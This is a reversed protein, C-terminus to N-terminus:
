ILMAIALLSLMSMSVSTGADLLIDGTCDFGDGSYGSDCACSFSGETNSCGANAGCNATGLTCEDDDTCDFGDGSYGSNCAYCSFSGETNNCGANADCNATGLTCEDDDTCDLGDGSYGSDCFCIFSGETNNCGANADCTGLTCEDIDDCSEVSYPGFETCESAQPVTGKSYGEACALTVNFADPGLNLNVETFVLSEDYPRTCNLAICSEYTYLETVASCATAGPLNGDATGYGENCEITAYFAVRNLNDGMLTVTEDVSFNPRACNSSGM